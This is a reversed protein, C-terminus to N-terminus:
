HLSVATYYEAKDSIYGKRHPEDARIGVYSYGSNM